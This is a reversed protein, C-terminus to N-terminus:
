PKKKWPNMWRFFVGLMMRALSFDTWLTGFSARRRLEAETPMCDELSIEGGALGAYVTFLEELFRFSGIADATVHHFHFLVDTKKAAADQFVVFRVGPTETLALPALLHTGMVFPEDHWALFQEGLPLKVKELVDARTEWAATGNEETRLTQVARPIKRLLVFLAKEFIERELCGRFILHTVADAPSGPIKADWHLFEEFPTM